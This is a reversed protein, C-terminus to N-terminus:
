RDDEAYHCLDSRYKIKAAAIYVADTGHTGPAIQVTIVEGATLSEGSLDLEIWQYASTLYDSDAEALDTTGASAKFVDYTFATTVDTTGGMKAKFLIKFEDDSEDYDDPVQVSIAAEVVKTAAWGLVPINTDALIWGPNTTLTTTLEAADSALCFDRLPIVRTTNFGGGTIIEKIKELAIM